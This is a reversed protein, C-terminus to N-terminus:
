SELQQKLKKCNKIQLYIAVKTSKNCNITLNIPLNAINGLGECTSLEECTDSNQNDEEDCDDFDLSPCNIEECDKNDGNEDCCENLKALLEELATLKSQLHAIVCCAEAKLRCLDITEPTQVEPNITNLDEQSSQLMSPITALLLICMKFANSTM